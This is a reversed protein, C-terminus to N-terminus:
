RRTSSAPEIGAWSGGALRIVLTIKKFSLEGRWSV